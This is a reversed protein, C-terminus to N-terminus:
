KVPNTLKKHTYVKTVTIDPIRHKREKLWNVMYTWRENM